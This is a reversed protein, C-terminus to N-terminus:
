HKFCFAPRPDWGTRKWRPPVGKTSSFTVFACVSLFTPRIVCCINKCIFVGSACIFVLVSEKDRIWFIRDSMATVGFYQSSPFWRNLEKMEDLIQLHRLTFWCLRLYWNYILASIEHQFCSLIKNQVFKQQRQKWFHCVNRRQFRKPTVRCEKWRCFGFQIKSSLPPVSMLWRIFNRSVVLIESGEKGARCCAANACARTGLRSQIRCVAPM